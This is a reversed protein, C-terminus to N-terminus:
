TWQSQFIFQSTSIRSQKQLTKIRKIGKIPKDDKNDDSCEDWNREYSLIRTRIAIEQPLPNYLYNIKDRSPVEKNLISLENFIKNM